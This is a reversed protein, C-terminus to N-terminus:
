PQMEQVENRLDEAWEYESNIDEFLPQLMDIMQEREEETMEKVQIGQDELFEKDEEISPIYIEWAYKNAEIAANRFVEVHEEPITELFDNSVFLNIAAIIHNTEYVYNQVEHWGENVMTTLPNDQGHVVGQELSTFVESLGMIVVNSGLEEVMGVHIPNNPMRMRQGEFDEPTELPLSSSFARAGNPMAALLSVGDQSDEVNEKLIDGFENQYAYSAHEVDDFMFPFDTALIYPIEDYMSSGLLSFDIIGAKTYAYTDTESGLVGNDFMQIDYEGPLRNEVYPIFVETMAQSSPTDAAVVSAIRITRSGGTEEASAVNSKGLTLITLLILPILPIIISKRKM